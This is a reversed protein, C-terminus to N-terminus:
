YYWYEQIRYTWGLQNMCFEFIANKPIVVTTHTGDMTSTEYRWSDTKYKYFSWNVVRILQGNRVNKVSVNFNKNESSSNSTITDDMVYIDINESSWREVWVDKAQCNDTSISLIMMVVLFVLLIFRKM